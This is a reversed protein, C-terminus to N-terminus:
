CLGFFLLSTPRKANAAGLPRFPRYPSVSPRARSNRPPASFHSPSPLLSDTRGPRVTPGEDRKKGCTEPIPWPLQLAPAIRIGGEKEADRPTASPPWSRSAM